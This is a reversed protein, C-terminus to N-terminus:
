HHLRASISRYTLVALAPSLSSNKIFSHDQTRVSIVPSSYPSLESQLYCTKVERPLRVDPSTDVGIMRSSRGDEGGYQEGPDVVLGVREEGGENGRRKEMGAWMKELVVSGCNWCKGVHRNTWVLSVHPRM